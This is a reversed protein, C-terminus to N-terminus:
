AFLSEEHEFVFINVPVYYFDHSCDDEGFYENTFGFNETEIEQSFDSQYGDYFTTNRRTEKRIVTMCYTIHRYLMSGEDDIDDHIIIDSIYGYNKEIYHEVEAGSIQDYCELNLEIKQGFKLTPNKM